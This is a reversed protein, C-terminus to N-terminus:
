KRAVITKIIYIRSQLVMPINTLILKNLCTIYFYVFENDPTQRVDRVFFYSGNKLSDVLVINREILLLKPM